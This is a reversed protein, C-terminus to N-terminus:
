GDIFAVRPRVRSLFSTFLMAILARNERFLGIILFSSFLCVCFVSGIQIHYPLNLDEILIRGLVALGIALLLHITYM